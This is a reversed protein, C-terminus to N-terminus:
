TKFTCINETAMLTTLLYSDNIVENLINESTSLPTPLHSLNHNLFACVAKRRKGTGAKEAGRIRELSSIGSEDDRNEFIDYCWQDSRKGCLCTMSKASDESHCHVLLPLSPLPPPPPPLCLLMLSFNLHVPIHEIRPM